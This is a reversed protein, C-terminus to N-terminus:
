ACSGTLPTMNTWTNSSTCACSAGSTDVYFDGIQCTTPATAAPTIRFIATATGAQDDLWLSYPGNTFTLDTGRPPGAIYLTASDTVTETAGGAVGRFSPSDIDVHHLFDLTQGSAVDWESIWRFQDAFWGTGTVLGDGTSNASTFQNIGPVSSGANSGPHLVIYGGPDDGVAGDGGEFAIEGSYASSTSTSGYLIANDDNAVTYQDVLIGNLWGGGGSGVCDTRGTEPNRARNGCEAARVTGQLAFWLLGALVLWGLQEPWRMPLGGTRRYWAIERKTM